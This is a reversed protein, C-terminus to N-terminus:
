SNYNRQKEYLSQFLHGIDILIKGFNQYIEEKNSTRLLKIITQKEMTKDMNRTRLNWKVEQFVTNIIKMLNPFKNVM